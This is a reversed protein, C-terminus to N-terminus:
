AVSCSNPQKKDRRLYAILGNILRKVETGKNYATQLQNATIYKRDLALYLESQVESASRRSIKLFRVFEADSGAEFGEAINHMISGAADRMQDRLQFDKGFSRQDTLDYVLNALERSKKWCDLDEFKEINM